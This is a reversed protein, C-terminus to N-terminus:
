KLIEEIDAILGIKFAILYADNVKRKEVRNVLEMIRPLINNLIKESKKM